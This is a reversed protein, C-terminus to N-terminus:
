LDLDRRCADSFARLWDLNSSAQERLLAPADKEARRYTDLIQVVIDDASALVPAPAVLGIKSILPYLRILGSVEELTHALAHAFM